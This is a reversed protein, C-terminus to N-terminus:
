QKVGEVDEFRGDTAAEIQARPARSRALDELTELHVTSPRTDDARQGPERARIGSAAGFRDLREDIFLAAGEGVDSAERPMGPLTYGLQIAVIRGRDLRLDHVGTAKSGHLEQDSCPHERGDDVAPHLVQM